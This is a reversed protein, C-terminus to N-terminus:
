ESSDFKRLAISNAYLDRYLERHVIRNWIEAKKKTGKEASKRSWQELLFFKGYFLVSPSEGLLSQYDKNGNHITMQDCRTSFLFTM